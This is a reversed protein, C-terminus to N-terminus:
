KCRFELTSEYDRDNTMMVGATGASGVVAGPVTRGTGIGVGGLVSAVKSAKRVTNRTEEDMDGTYQTKQNNPIFVAQLKRKECYKNAAKVAEDEADDREIDRSRIRNIGDEGPMVQVSATSCAFGFVTFLLSGVLLYINRM